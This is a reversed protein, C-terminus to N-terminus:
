SSPGTRGKQRLFHFLIVCLVSPLYCQPSVFCPSPPHITHLVNYLSALCAKVRYYLLFRIFRSFRFWSLFAPKYGDFWEKIVSKGIINLEILSSIETYFGTSWGTCVFHFKVNIMYLCVSETKTGIFLREISIILLHYKRNLRWTRAFLIVDLELFLGVIGFSLCPKM